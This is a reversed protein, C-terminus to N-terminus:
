ENKGGKRLRIKILDVQDKTLIAAHELARRYSVNYYEMIVAIAEDKEPKFWKSFRKKPRLSHFFYEYQMLKDANNNLNMENAHFITDVFYSFARNTLFPVYDEISLEGSKVRDVGSNIANTDDFPSTM